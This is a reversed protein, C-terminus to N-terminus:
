LIVHITQMYWEALIFQIRVRTQKYVGYDNLNAVDNADVIINITFDRAPDSVTNSQLVM